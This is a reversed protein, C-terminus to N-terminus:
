SFSIFLGILFGRIFDSAAKLVTRNSFPLVSKEQPLSSQIWLFEKLLSM